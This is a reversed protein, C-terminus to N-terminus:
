QKGHSRESLVYPPDCFVFYESAHEITARTDSSQADDASATTKLSAAAGCEPAVGSMAPRQITRSGRDGCEDADSGAASYETVGFRFRLWEISDCHHIEIYRGEPLRRWSDWWECISADTEIVITHEAPKIKRTVGCKGAFASVLIRHRPILNILRQYVGAGSKGGPYSSQDVPVAVSGAADTSRADTSGINAQM